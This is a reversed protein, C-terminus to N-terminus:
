RRDEADGTSLAARLASFTADDVIWRPAIAPRGPQVYAKDSVAQAAERLRDDGTARAAHRPMKAPHGAALWARYQEPTMDAAPTRDIAEPDLPDLASVGGHSHPGDFGHSHRDGAVHVHFEPDPEAAPVAECKCVIDRDM